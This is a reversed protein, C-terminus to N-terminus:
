PKTLAVSFQSNSERRTRGLTREMGETRAVRPITGPVRQRIPIAMM